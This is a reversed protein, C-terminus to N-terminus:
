GFNNGPASGSPGKPRYPSADAVQTTAVQEKAAVPETSLVNNVTNAPAPQTSSYGASMLDAYDKAGRIWAAGFKGEAEYSGALNATGHIRSDMASQHAAAVGPASKVIMATRGVSDLSVDVARDLGTRFAM